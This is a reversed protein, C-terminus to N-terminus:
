LTGNIVRKVGNKLLNVNFNILLGLKCNSLRLYTLLQALHVDNLAEVSKIEVIFKNEIIIDIRYGADLKVDEYVLPLQKQKEIKLNHKKLEYFLCEEYASELLGPGLVQHVKLASEFVIKSIDNESM